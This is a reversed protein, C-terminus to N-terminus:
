WESVVPPKRRRVREFRPPAGWGLKDAPAWVLRRAARHCAWRGQPDCSLALPAVKRQLRRSRAATRWLRRVAGADLVDDAGPCRGRLAACGVGLVLAVVATRRARGFEASCVAVLADYVEGARDGSGLQLNDQVSGFFDLWSDKM